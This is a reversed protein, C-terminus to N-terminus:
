IKLKQLNEFEQDFKDCFEDVRSEGDKKYNKLQTYHIKTRLIEQWKSINQELLRVEKM